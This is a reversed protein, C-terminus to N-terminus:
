NAIRAHPFKKLFQRFCLEEKNSLTQPIIRVSLTGKGIHVKLVIKFPFHQQEENTVVFTGDDEIEKTRLLLYEVVVENDIKVNCPFAPPFAPPHIIATRGVMNVTQSQSPDRVTGM